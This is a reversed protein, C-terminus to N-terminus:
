VRFLGKSRVDEAWLRKQPAEEVTVAVSFWTPKGTASSFRKYNYRLSAIRTRMLLVGPWLLQVEPPAGSAINQASQSSLTMADLIKTAEDPVKVGSETDVFFTFSLQENKRFQFQMVEHSFGLPALRSYGVDVTRSLEEPRYPLALEELTVMNTLTVREPTTDAM